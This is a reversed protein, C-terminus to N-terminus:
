LFPSITEHLFFDFTYKNTFRVRINISLINTLWNEESRSVSADRRTLYIGMNLIKIM